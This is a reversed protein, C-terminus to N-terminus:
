FCEDDAWKAPNEDIYTWHNQLDADNRIIHDYYGTQWLSKGCARRTLSKFAKIVDPVSKRLLAPHGVGGNVPSLEMLIHIHNPMVVFHLIRVGTYANSISQIVQQVIQGDAILITRPPTLVGRGVVEGLSHAKNQTCVTLFYM